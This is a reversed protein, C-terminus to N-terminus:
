HKGNPRSGAHKMYKRGLTEQKNKKTKRVYLVRVGNCEHGLKEETVETNCKPCKYLM